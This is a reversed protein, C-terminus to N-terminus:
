SFLEAMPAHEVLRVQRSEDLPMISAPDIGLSHYITATLEGPSVPREVPSSGRADSAGIVQGGQVGAGAIMASWVGPWHERGGNENVRPSRGFEGTAVVLTEDLLGRGALDDLLAAMARDFRPGLTDRYDYLTAPAWPARAHCDWTTQGSLTDFLNVVVCRTGAEVLQRAQLLLRGFRTDGYGCRLLDCDEDMVDSLVAPEFAEGLLGASQGRSASVGTEGLMQPLVVFPPVGGRAGLERAVVSGFCPFRVNGGALRGTQLLQLGTEHIPAADHTLSRILAFRDMREALRPLSESLAIGPVSTAIARLPGRIEGPADPKPDFTELHSAGGAMLVFIVSRTHNLREAAAESWDPVSMGLVGLGGVQLFRRRSVTDRGGAADSRSAM